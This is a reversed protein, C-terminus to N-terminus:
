DVPIGIAYIGEKGQPRGRIDRSKGPPRGWIDRSKETDRERIDRSEGPTQGWTDRSKWPM